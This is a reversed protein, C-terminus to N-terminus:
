YFYKSVNTRPKVFCSHSRSGVLYNDVAFRPLYHVQYRGDTRGNTQRDTQARVASGNSRHGQNKAHPDVKVRALIPNYTLTTPWLELDFTLFRTKCGSNGQQLTLTLPRPWPWLDPDLDHTLTLTWPWSEPACRDINPARSQRTCFLAIPTM